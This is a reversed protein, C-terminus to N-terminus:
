AEDRRSWRVKLNLLGGCAALALYFEWGVQTADLHARLWLAVALLGFALSGLGVASRIPSSPGKV